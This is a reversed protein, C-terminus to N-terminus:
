RGRGKRRKVMAEVAERVTMNSVISGDPKAEYVSEKKPPADVEPNKGSSVLDLLQGILGLADVQDDHKGGPFAALESKFDALWEAHKPVMLGQMAMRGRISQARIAKDGKTPFGRRWVSAGRERARKTLFPGVGSKIQGTEEAAQSPKYEKVLDCWAEVWVDSSAQKRWVDLLWMHGDPDIGIVVHVTYDGGDSTVAYDSGMYVKLTSLPPAIEYERLWDLKFMDGGSIIPTQMYQGAFVQPALKLVEIQQRNHKTAWLPGDPLGHPILEVNGDPKQTEGEILVPLQLLHWHEGSKELVHAVFDDVHLRQMIVIVPVDEHALRSKFTNEWRANIFKRMTESHADDPKLPDDIILAGTFGAEALIGARFGTIPEGSSAARLHGGATTRWLGKANTDIRMQVPWYAQFGELNIIDKAKSSNDLALAQAYSAHIFRSRPNLAFGRAIFNIVALETNHTVVLDRGACFLADPADVTFCVMERSSVPVIEDIFRRPRNCEKRPRSLGKKRSLRFAEVGDPLSFTTTYAVKGGAVREYGRWVAGISNILSRVDDSLQKSTFTVSQSGNKANVTGDTDCVGQLLAVRQAHSALMYSFPIHKNAVVGLAKLATIFGNRLGYTTAQGANQHKQPKPDYKSFVAVIDADMTTIAAQHSHGDGLWCGFLYPDIPLAVEEERTDSLVPIRWKKRGDAGRLDDALEATTRVRWPAQWKDGVDRLRVAWRHESCTVLSSKDSFTVKFAPVAGQPYVGLVKAWQGNSGLLDDGERVDGARVWGDPTLMPTDCDIAKGYGPPINIILRKIEGSFVRDLADCMVPHFPAVSLPQGEKEVFFRRTFALHSSLLEKREKARDIESRRSELEARIATLL